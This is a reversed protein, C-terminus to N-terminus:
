KIKWINTSSDKQLHIDTKLEVVPKVSNTEALECGNDGWHVEYGMNVYSNSNLTANVNNVGYVNTGPGPYYYYATSALYYNGVLISKEESAVFEIMTTFSEIIMYSEDYTIYPTRAEIGTINEIDKLNISRGFEAGKGYGYIAGINNLVTPGNKIAASGGLILKTPLVETTILIKGEKVGMVRWTRTADESTVTYIKNQEDVTSLGDHLAISSDNGTM